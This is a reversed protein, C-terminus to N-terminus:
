LSTQVAPLSLPSLPATHLWVSKGSSVAKSSPRLPETHPPFLFVSYLIQVSHPATHASALDGCETHLSTM